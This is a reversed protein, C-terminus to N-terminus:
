SERINKLLIEQLYLKVNQKKKLIKLRMLFTVKIGCYHLVGFALLKLIIPIQFIGFNNKVNKTDNFIFIKANQRNILQLIPLGKKGLVSKRVVM